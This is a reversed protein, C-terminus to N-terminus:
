LVAKYFEGKETNVLEIKGLATLLKLYELMKRRSVGFSMMFEAIFREKEPFEYAVTAGILTNHLTQIKMDREERQQQVINKKMKTHKEREVRITPARSEKKKM